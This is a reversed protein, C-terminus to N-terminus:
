GFYRDRRWKGQGRRRLPRARRSESGRYMAVGNSRCWDVVPDDAASTSTAVWVDDTGLAARAARVVWALVPKGALGALVKGPLRTSGMRAQIIAITKMRNNEM